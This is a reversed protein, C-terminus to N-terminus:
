AGQRPSALRRPGRGSRKPTARFRTRLILLLMEMGLLVAKRMDGTVASVGVRPRYNVPAEVFDLGEQIVALTMELGFTNGLAAFRPRIRELACRRVLRFTCGCDTLITCNFLFEATKAVAWNGWKLWFGMNAGEWVFERTTRTGVVYDVDDAYALFKFIDRPCFTGDPECVIILDGAAEVLGRRIAAGYGQVPEMVERALTAAVQESTGPAANNNVVVVEDAVGTAFFEEICRRISDKENYTPLVVSVRENRWM